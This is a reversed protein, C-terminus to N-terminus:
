ISIHPKYPPKLEFYLRMAMADGFDTSRGMNDKIEEKSIIRLAQDKDPDKQKIQELDEIMMNKVEDNVGKYCSVLGKSVYDALYFYCQSKLNLFNHRLKSFKTEAPRSNNVFGKVGRMEDVVGGGVGDEDVVIHSRPVGYEKSMAELLMRTKNTGQKSYVKIKEMHMGRWLIIVTFDSGFRAVDCTIFRETSDAADNSFIDLIQDYDFLRAPDDDYEFNGHLLREKTVKDSKKLQEVYTNDLYTNDQHLARIFVRHKPLKNDKWLKYYRYYIHTKSPNFTELLKPAIGYHENLQRGIRSKIIEVALAPTEDAEDIFVGTLELSGFRTFLPDSPKNATDMLFIKSENKFTITNTQQNLVFLSDPQIGMQGIVKYFTLLTTKKLNTLEKRGIVWHTKPYRLAQRIIWFCGLFSKGGGAGGGFGIETITKNQTLLLFALAQKETLNFEVIRPPKQKQIISSKSSM